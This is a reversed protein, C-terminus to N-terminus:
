LNKRLYNIDSKIMDYGQQNIRSNKKIRVLKRDLLNLSREITKQKNKIIRDLRKNLRQLIKQKIKPKLKKNNQIKQILKETRGIRRDFHKLRKQLIKLRAILIRKVYKKSIWDLSYIKEIDQISSDINTIIEFKVEASASNNLISSRSITLAGGDTYAIIGESYKIEAYDININVGSRNTMIGRWDGPAPATNDGDGNTDGGVSDDKLSTFVIPNDANGIAMIDGNAIISGEEQIKIITGPKIILQDWSDIIFVGNIVRVESNDWIIDKARASDGVIFFGALIFIPLIFFEFFLIKKSYKKNKM